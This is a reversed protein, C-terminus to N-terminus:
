PLKYVMHMNLWFIYMCLMQHLSRNSLSDLYSKKKCFNHHALWLPENCFLCVFPSSQSADVVLKISNVVPVYGCYRSLLVGQLTDQSVVNPSNYIAWNQLSASFSAIRTFLHLRVNSKIKPYLKTELIWCCVSSVGNRIKRITRMTPVNHVLGLPNSHFNATKRTPLRLPSWAYCIGSTVL